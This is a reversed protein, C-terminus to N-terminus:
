KAPSPLKLKQPVKGTAKAEAIARNLVDNAAALRNEEEQLKALSANLRANERSLRAVEDNLASIQQQQRAHDAKSQGWEYWGISAALVAAVLVGIVFRGMALLM